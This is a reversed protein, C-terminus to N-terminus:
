SEKCKKGEFPIELSGITNFGNERFWKDYFYREGQREPYFFNALYATKGRITAANATFVLDPYQDAGTPEMVKVEAGAKEITKRLNEWQAQAKTVNVPEKMNMWPNIAYRVQFFTPRCM